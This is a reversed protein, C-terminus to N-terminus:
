ILYWSHLWPTETHGAKSMGTMHKCMGSESATVVKARSRGIEQLHRAGTLQM